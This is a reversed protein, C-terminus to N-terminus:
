SLNLISRANTKFMCAQGLSYLFQACVSATGNCQSMDIGITNEKAYDMPM